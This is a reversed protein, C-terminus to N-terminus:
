QCALAHIEYKQFVGWLYDLECKGRENKMAEMFPLEVYLDDQHYADNISRPKWSVEKEM